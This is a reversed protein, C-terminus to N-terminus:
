TTARPEGSPPGEPSPRPPRICEFVDPIVHVQAPTSHCLELIAAQQEPDANEIAVLILSVRHEAVLAPISRSSGLIPLGHLRAERKALDEDVFGVVRYSRGWPQSAVRRAILRGVDSTGVILMHQAHTATERQWLPRCRLWVGRVLRRRYRGAMFLGLCTLGVLLAWQYPLNFALKGAIGLVLTSAGAALSLDVVERGSSYAWLSHQLGWLQNVVSYLLAVTVALTAMPPWGVHFPGVTSRWAVSVAVVALLGLAFDLTFWTLHRRIFRQLPGFLMEEIDPSVDAFRPLLVLATRWLIDLDVLLNRHDLYQMDLALKDPMITGVYTEELSEQSLMSEEDRYVISAM